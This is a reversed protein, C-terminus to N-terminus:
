LLKHTSRHPAVPEVEGVHTRIIQVYFDAKRPMILKFCAKEKINSLENKTISERFQVEQVIIRFKKCKKVMGQSNLILPALPFEVLICLSFQWMPMNSCVVSCSRFLVFICMVYLIEHPFSPLSGLASKPIISWQALSTQM